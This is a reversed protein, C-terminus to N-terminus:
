NGSRRNGLSSTAPPIGAPSVLEVPLVNEPLVTWCTEPLLFAILGDDPVPVLAIRVKKAEGVKPCIYRTYITGPKREVIFKNWFAELEARDDPHYISQWEAGQVQTLNKGFTLKYAANVYVPTGDAGAILVPIPCLDVIFSLREIEVRYGEFRQLLQFALTKEYDM